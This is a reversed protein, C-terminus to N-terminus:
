LSAPQLTRVPVVPPQWGEPKVAKGGCSAAVKRLNAEHVARWAPDPDIGLEAFTGAIVYTLDILEQVVHAVEPADLPLDRMAALSAAEILAEHVERAEEDIYALRRLLVAPTIRQFDGEGRGEGELSSPSLGGGLSPSSPSPAGGVSLPRSADGYGIERHFSAVDEVLQRM